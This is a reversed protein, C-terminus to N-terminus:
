QQRAAVEVLIDKLLESARQYFLQADHAPGSTARELRAAETQATQLGRSLLNQAAPDDWLEGDVYRSILRWPEGSIGSGIICPGRLFADARSCLDNRGRLANEARRSAAQLASVIGHAERTSLGENVLRGEVHAPPDGDALLDSALAFASAKRRQRSLIDEAKSM